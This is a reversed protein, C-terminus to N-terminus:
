KNSEKDKKRIKKLIGTQSLILFSIIVLFCLSIPRKFMPLLSGSSITLARRLNSDTMPGLIVGLLFPASPYKLSSLIFGLIGFIFMVKIDFMNYNIVYSGVVCLVFVLPMLIERKIGLIKVSVKAIGLALVWMVVASVLLYMCIQYLFEPTERILLPGPRYGHMMIAAMLVAAPASGPVALSLIPIIAGGICANNGTEASIVGLDNGQGFSEPDKSTSKSVWYSLWGGVDEGVGPIIGVGVGILSSRIIAIINKFITQFGEKIKFTTMQLVKNESKKFAQIIEPFGFLGIMVPILNISSMLNINGYSYRPFSNITDLGIQAVFLGMIGSIWGKLADGNSTLNGCIIIGFISLLFFEWVGFKLSFKTLIPTLTLVCFISLVTGFFSATTALFIAYGGRGKRALPFGDLATAASAPTGPINLLIASQCGGSIAGVYVGVLSILATSHPFRYTLGTLLAVAMTASLGPLMGMILGSFVSIVLVFINWPQVVIGVADYLYQFM